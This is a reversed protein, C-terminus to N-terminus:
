IGRFVELSRLKWSHTLTCNLSYSTSNEFSPELTFPVLFVLYKRNGYFLCDCHLLSWGVFLRLWYDLWSPFTTLIQPTSGFWPIFTWHWTNKEFIFTSLMQTVLFFFRKSSSFYLSNVVQCAEYKHYREGRLSFKETMMFTLQFSEMRTNIIITIFLTILVHDNNQELSLM